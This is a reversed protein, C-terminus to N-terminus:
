SCLADSSPALLCSAVLAGLMVVLLMFSSKASRKLGIKLVSKGTEWLSLNVQVGACLAREWFVCLGFYLVLRIPSESNHPSSWIMSNHLRRPHSPRKVWKWTSRNNYKKLTHMSQISKCCCASKITNEAFTQVAQIRGGGKRVKNKLHMSTVNRPADFSDLIWWRYIIYYRNLM